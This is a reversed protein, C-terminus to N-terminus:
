GAEVMSVEPGKDDMIFDWVEDQRRGVLTLKGVM